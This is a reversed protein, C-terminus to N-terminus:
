STWLIAALPFAPLWVRNSKFDAATLQSHTTQRFWVRIKLYLLSQLVNLFKTWIGSCRRRSCSGCLDLTQQKGETYTKCLAWISTQLYACRDYVYHGSPPATKVNVLSQWRWHQIQASKNIFIVAEEVIYLLKYKRIQECSCVCLRKENEKKM